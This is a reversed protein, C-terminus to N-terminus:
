EPSVVPRPDAVVGLHSVVGPGASAAARSGAGSVKAGDPALLVDAAPAGPGDGALRLWLGHQLVDATRNCSEGYGDVPDPMVICLFGDGPVVWGQGYPTRIARALAANRGFKASSAMAIAVDTPPPSAQEDRFLAFHDRIAAQVAPVASATRVIGSQAPAAADASPGSEAHAGVAIAAASTAVAAFATLSIRARM